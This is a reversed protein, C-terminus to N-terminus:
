DSEGNTVAKAKADDRVVPVDQPATIGIRVTNPGLRVITVTIDNGIHVSEGLRRSLVLM